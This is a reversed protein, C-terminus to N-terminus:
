GSAIKGGLPCKAIDPLSMIVVPPHPTQQQHTSPLSWLHELFLLGSPETKLSFRWKGKESSLSMSFYRQMKKVCHSSHVNEFIDRGPCIELSQAMYSKDTCILSMVSFHLEIFAIECFPPYLTFVITQYVLDAQCTCNLVGRPSNLPCFVYVWRQKMYCVLFKQNLLFLFMLCHMHRTFSTWLGQSLLTM